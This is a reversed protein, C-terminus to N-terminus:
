VYYGLIDVIFDTPGPGGLTVSIKSNAPNVQSTFNNAITQGAAWNINSTAPQTAGEQWVTLYGLGATNTVTLNGLVATANSPVSSNSTVDLSVVTGTTIPMKPPTLPNNGPRSDYIRAPPITTLAPTLLNVWTGPTGTLICQWLTANGDM